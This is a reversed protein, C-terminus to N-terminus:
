LSMGQNQLAIRNDDTYYWTQQLLGSYCQWIKMQVGNGPTTGADLCYNTGAVQVATTGRNIIWKQANTGNCDYSNDYPPDAVASM